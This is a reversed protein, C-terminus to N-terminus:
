GARVEALAAAAADRTIVGRASLLGAVQEVEDGLAGVAIAVSRAHLSMHGRQIGETALARLAALNSALGVSAAILALEDASEVGAVRLALQAGPHVRLTGGVIGLALPMELEGVLDEGDRRWVALPAYRGSRAAYAHAGAEVARFDNGTAIVVADVGNMIGKNHTAARYPDLEAFRSASAIGDVIERADFESVASELARSAPLEGSSGTGRGFVLEAAHVRCTARVRRRDCLNSLIRLGLTGGAIKAAVPGIAEAIGNVLNAGMADRCDVLVHLVVTGQGLERIEIKRPGGGRQVLGPAARAGLELMEESAQELRAVAHHTDPVDCLQVQGIMLAERMEASFGGSARVMRAANSAAAIVSPEEVVMPVLRDRGNVRVNLAIGFPVGYTGLVNEVVKDAVGVDLGGREVARVLLELPVGAREAVLQRRADLSLRYFGPIRSGSNSSSM